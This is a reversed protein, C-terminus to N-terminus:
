QRSRCFFSKENRSSLMSVGRYGNDGPITQPMFFITGQYKMDVLLHNDKLLSLGKRHFAAVPVGNM